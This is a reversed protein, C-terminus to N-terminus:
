CKLSKLLLERDKALLTIRKVDDGKKCNLTLYRDTNDPVEVEIINQYSIKTKDEESTELNPDLFYLKEKGLLIFKPYHDVEVTSLYYPKDYDDILKGLAEEVSHSFQSLVM